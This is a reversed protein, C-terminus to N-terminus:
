ENIERRDTIEPDKEVMNPDITFTIGNQPLKILIANVDPDIYIPGKLNQLNLKSHLEIIQMQVTELQRMQDKYCVNQFCFTAGWLIIMIFVIGIFVGFVINIIHQSDTGYM